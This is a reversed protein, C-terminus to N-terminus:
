KKHTRRNRRSRRKHPKRSKRRVKKIIAKGKEITKSEIKSLVDSARQPFINLDAQKEPGSLVLKELETDSSGSDSLLTQDSQEIGDKVSPEESPCYLSVDGLPVFGLRHYINKKIYNSNDSCDDLIAHKIHRYELKLDSIGYILLFTAFYNGAYEEKTNVSDVHFLEVERTTERKRLKVFAKGERLTHIRKPIYVLLPKTVNERLNSIRVTDEIISISVYSIKESSDQKTIYFEYSNNPHEQKNIKYKKTIIINNVRSKLSSYVDDM